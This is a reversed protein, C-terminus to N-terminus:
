DMLQGGNIEIIEGTIYNAADSLLFVMAGVVEEPTGERGMPISQVAKDRIDPPTFRDHFPTAIIGPAVGNVTVNYSVLEKALGRTMTSVAGKAASYAVSGNGGGNRASISTVNLIKGQQRQKFHAIVEKSCLFVSKLNINMMEDWYEETMEDVKRREILAGANNVLFDIQGYAALTQEFLSRVQKVKSVDAKIAVAVGGNEKIQAVVQDAKEKSANYNVVVKAGLRGMELAFASGIGTSAGTILVVKGEFM